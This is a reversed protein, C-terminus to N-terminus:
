QTTATLFWYGPPTPASSTTVVFVGDPMVAAYSLGVNGVSSGETGDDNCIPGSITPLYSTEGSFTLQTWTMGDLSTWALLETTKCSERGFMVMHAGDGAVMAPNGTALPLDTGIEGLLQWSRGDTSAWGSLPNPEGETYNQRGTAFIGDAGAIVTSLAAGLVESGEVESALWNVGDVSTWAAPRGVAPIPDMVQKEGVRGIIVFGGSFATVDRFYANDFASSLDLRDWTVGDSSHIIVPPGQPNACCWPGVTGIAVLGTPGGTASIFTDATWVDRWTASDLASWSSGNDSRWLRPAGAPDPKFGIALLANGAPVLRAPIQEEFGQYSQDIPNDEQAITWRLGDASTFFAPSTTGPSRPSTPDWTSSSGVGVYGNGWQVVDNL